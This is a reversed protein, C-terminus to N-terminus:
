VLGIKMLTREIDTKKKKHKKELWKLNTYFEAKNIVGNLYRRMQEICATRFDM